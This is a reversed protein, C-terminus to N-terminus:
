PSRLVVGSSGGAAREPQDDRLTFGLVLGTAAVAAVSLSFTRWRKRRITQRDHPRQEREQLGSGAAAHPANLLVVEVNTQEGGKIRVTRREPV